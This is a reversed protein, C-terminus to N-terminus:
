RNGGGGGAAPPKTGGGPVLAMKGDVNRCTGSVTEGRPTKAQVTDGEAHGKCADYVWQPRSGGGRVGEGPVLLMKGDINRCTGSVTEGRSNKMQVTDGEAHGKCADSAEQSPGQKGGELPACIGNGATSFTVIFAAAVIWVTNILWRESM